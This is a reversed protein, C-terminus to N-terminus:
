VTWRSGRLFPAFFGLFANLLRFLLVAFLLSYSSVTATVLGESRTKGLEKDHDGGLSPMTDLRVRFPQKM